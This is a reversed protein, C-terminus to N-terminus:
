YHHVRSYKKKSIFLLKQQEQPPFFISEYMIVYQNEFLIIETTNTASLKHNTM